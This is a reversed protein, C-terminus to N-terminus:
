PSPQLEDPHSVTAPKNKIVVDVVREREFFVSFGDYDWRTIEPHQPSDGGVPPYRLAPEGLLRLVGAQSQGRSIPPDAAAGAMTEETPVVLTEAVAPTIAMGAAAWTFGAVVAWIANRM